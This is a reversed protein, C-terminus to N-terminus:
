AVTGTYQLRTYLNGESVQVPPSGQSQSGKKQSGPLTAMIPKGSCRM